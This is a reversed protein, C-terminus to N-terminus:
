SHLAPLLLYLLQCPQRRACLDREALTVYFVRQSASAPVQLTSGTHSYGSDQLFM